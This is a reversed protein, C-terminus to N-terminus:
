KRKILEQQLLSLLEVRWNERVIKNISNKLHQTTMKNIPIVIGTKTRWCKTELLHRVSMREWYEIDEPELGFWTQEEVWSM